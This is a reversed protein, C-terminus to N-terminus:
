PISSLSPRSQNRIRRNSPMRSLGQVARVLASKQAKRVEKPDVPCCGTQVPPGCHSQVTPMPCCSSEIPAPKQLVPAPCSQEPKQCSQNNHDKAQLATAGYGWLTVVLAVALAKSWAYM